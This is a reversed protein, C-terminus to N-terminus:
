RQEDAQELDGERYSREGAPEDEVAGSQRGDHVEASAYGGAGGEAEPQGAARLAVGLASEAPSRSRVSRRQVRNGGLHESRFGTAALPGPTTGANTTSSARSKAKRPGQPCMSRMAMVINSIASV